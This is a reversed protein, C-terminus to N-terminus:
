GMGYDEHAAVAERDEGHEPDFFDDVATYITRTWDEASESAFVTEPFTCYRRLSSLAAVPFFLLILRAHSNATLFTSTAPRYTYRRHSIILRYPLPSDISPHHSSQSLSIICSTISFHLVAALTPKQAQTALQVSLRDLPLSLVSISRWLYIWHLSSM